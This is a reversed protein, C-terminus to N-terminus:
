YETPDSVVLPAPQQEPEPKELRQRYVVLNEMVRQVYNRTEYFPIREIWDVKDVNPDRPDGNADVWKKVNGGGANYSAFALIHSGKWDEMLEGLHASGLRANYSPDALLKDPDYGVGFRQATRKATAPMLQMLGRAGAGSQAKPNFASEQRAIAYVMAPEVPDGVPDFDPIAALPYAHFDLPLGRQVATKGIALVARPNKAETALGALADLQAPNDFSQGLETFLTLALDQEGAQQLLKVARIPTMADFALREGVSLPVPARLQVKEGLENLALQGYYTTPRDAAIRYLRRAEAEQGGEKAARGEWYAARSISIPTTAEKAAAAFHTAALAPDKLFRLAIWGSHFEAEIHQAPSEASHRSAVEYAKRVSGQDLLERTVYKRETWWGDGDVVMEADQPANILVTAAADFEGARRLFLARSFLYSPDTRLKTPVAAFAKEAPKKGRYIGMRAKVLTENEGGAREAARSAAGWNEKFLQREMRFRHDSVRLADAFKDLIRTETEAGFTEERWIQRIAEVAKEQEGTADLAFALAVRGGLTMPERGGLEAVLREPGPRTALLTEELRRQLYKSLPWDPNNDRFAAMREYTMPTGIRILFWELAARSSPEVLKSRLIDAEATDKGRYAKLLAPFYDGDGLLVPAPLSVPAPEILPVDGKAWAFPAAASGLLLASTLFGFRLRRPTTSRKDM